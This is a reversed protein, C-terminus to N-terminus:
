PCCLKLAELAEDVSLEKESLKKLILAKSMDEEQKEGTLQAAIKKLQAKITPYSVKLIHEMERISGHVRIFHIVFEQNEKSLKSLASPIFEGEIQLNSEPIDVKRIRFEKDGVWALLDDWSHQM